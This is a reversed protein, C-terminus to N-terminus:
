ALHLIISFNCLVNHGKIDMHAMGGAKLSILALTLQRAWVFFLEADMASRNELMWLWSPGRECYELVLAWEGKGSIAQEAVSPWSHVICHGQPEGNLDGLNILGFCEVTAAPTPGLQWFAAAEILGLERADLNNTHPIKIACPVAGNGEGISLGTTASASAATSLSHGLLGLCVTSYQGSGLVKTRDVHAVLPLESRADFSALTDNSSLSAIANLHPSKVSPDMATAAPPMCRSIDLQPLCGTVQADPRKTDKIPVTYLRTSEHAAM